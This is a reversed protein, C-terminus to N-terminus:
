FFEYGFEKIKINITNEETPKALIGLKLYAANPPIPLAIGRFTSSNPTIEIYFDDGVLPQIVNGLADTFGIGRIYDMNYGAQLILVNDSEFQCIFNVGGANNPIPVTIHRNFYGAGTTTITGTESDWTFNECTDEEEKEWMEAKIKKYSDLNTYSYIKEIKNPLYGLDFKLITPTGRIIVNGDCVVKEGKLNYLFGILNSNNIVIKGVRATSNSVAKFLPENLTYGEPDSIGMTCNDIFIQGDEVTIFPTENNNVNQANLVEFHCNVFSMHGLTCHIKDPVLHITCGIFFCETNCVIKGTWLGCGIFNNAEGTDESDYIIMNGNAQVKNFIINYFNNKYTHAKCHLLTEADALVINEFECCNVSKEGDGIAILTTTTTHQGLISFGGSKRNHKYRGLYSFTEDITFVLATSSDMYPIINANGNGKLTFKDLYINLTDTTKYNGEPLLLISVNDNKKCFNIAKQLAGTDDTEGDSKAGFQKANVYDQILLKAYLGKQLAIISAEDAEDEGINNTIVYNAGGGDGAIYFGLTKLTYGAKVKNSAKMEEVNNFVLVNNNAYIKDVNAELWHKEDTGLKGESDARPVINRTAM